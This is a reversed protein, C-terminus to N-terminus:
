ITILAYGVLKIRRAGRGLVIKGDQQLRELAIQISENSNIGTMSKIEPISPPYLNETTYRVIAEYVGDMTARGKKTIKM